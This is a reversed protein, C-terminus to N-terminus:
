AGSPRSENGKNVDVGDVSIPAKGTVENVHEPSACEFVKLRRMYIMAKERAKDEGVRDLRQRQRETWCKRKTATTVVDEEEVTEGIDLTVLKMPYRQTASERSTESHEHHKERPLKGNSCRHSVAAPFCSGNTMWGSPKRVVMASTSVSQLGRACMHGEVIQVDAMRSVEVIEPLFFLVVCELSTRSLLLSQSQHTGEKMCEM